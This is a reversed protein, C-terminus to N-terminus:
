AAGEKRERELACESEMSEVRASLKLHAITWMVFMVLVVVWIGHDQEIKYIGPGSATIQTWMQSETCVYYHGHQPDISVQGVICPSKM